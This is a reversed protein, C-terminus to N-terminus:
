RSQAMDDFELELYRPPIPGSLFVRPEPQHFPIGDAWAERAKVALIVPEREKSHRKGVSEAQERDVSLHVYQRDMPLLGKELISAVSRPATGHYLREPPEAPEYALAAETSHGYRARIRDGRIEFRQKPSNATVREIDAREIGAFRREKKLADLLESIGVFGEEGLTLGVSDPRHRLLYSMTKSLAIEDM